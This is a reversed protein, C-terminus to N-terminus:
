HNTWPINSGPKSSIRLIGIIPIGKLLPIGPLL